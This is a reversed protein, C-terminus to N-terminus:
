HSARWADHKMGLAADQVLRRFERLNRRPLELSDTRPPRKRFCRKRFRFSGPLLSRCSILSDCRTAPDGPGHAAWGSEAAFYRCSLSVLPKMSGADWPSDPQIGARSIEMSSTGTYSSIRRPELLHRGSDFTLRNIKRLIRIQYDDIQAHPHVADVSDLGQKSESRLYRRRNPCLRVSQEAVLNKIKM